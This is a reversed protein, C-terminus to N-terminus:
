ASGADDEPESAGDADRDEGREVRLVSGTKADVEVGVLGRGDAARIDYSYLLRGGEEELEADVIQGPVRQLALSRAAADTVTAQALLGPSEEQLAVAGSAAAASTVVQREAGGATTVGDNSCGAAFSTAAFLLAATRL